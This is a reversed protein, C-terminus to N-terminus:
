IDLNLNRHPGRARYTSKYALDGISPPYVRQGNIRLNFIFIQWKNVKEFINNKDRLVEIRM